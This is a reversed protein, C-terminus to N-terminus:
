SSLAGIVILRLEKLADSSGTNGAELAADFKGSVLAKAEDQGDLAGLTLLKLELVKTADFSAEIEDFKSTVLEKNSLSTASDDPAVHIEAVPAQSNIKAEIDLVNKVTLESKMFSFAADALRGSETCAAYLNEMDNVAALVDVENPVGGIVTNYLVCTVTVHEGSNRRPKSVPIGKHKGYFDGRSVRAASACGERPSVATAARSRTARRAVAKKKKPKPLPFASPASSEEKEASESEVGIDCAIEEDDHTGGEDAAEAMELAAMTEIGTAMCPEAVIAGRQKQGYAPAFSSSAPKLATKSSSCPLCPPAPPPQPGAGCAGLPSVSFTSGFAGTM